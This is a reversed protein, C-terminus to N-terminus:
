KSIVFVPATFPLLSSNEGTITGSKKSQDADMSLGEKGLLVLLFGLLLLVPPEKTM